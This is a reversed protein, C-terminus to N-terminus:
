LLNRQKTGPHLTDATKPIPNERDRIGKRTTDQIWQMCHFADAENDDLPARGLQLKFMRKMEDKKAHGHGTAFCKLTATHVPLYHVGRFECWATLIAKYGGWVQTASVMTAGTKSKAAFQVLEYGVAYPKGVQYALADLRTWLSLFRAGDGAGKRPTHDWTGAMVPGKGIQYCYGTKTGLDIGLYLRDGM